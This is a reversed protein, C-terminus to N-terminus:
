SVEQSELKQELDFLKDVQEDTMGGTDTLRPTWVQERMQQPSVAVHEVPKDSRPQQTKYMAAHAGRNTLALNVERLHTIEERMAKCGACGIM